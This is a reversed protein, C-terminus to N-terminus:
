NGCVTRYLEVMGRTSVDTTFSRRFERQAVEGLVRARDPDDLLTEIADRLKDVDEAPVLLASVNDQVAERVAALDSAVIPLGFSMAELVAGPLGEWLSPAVFIDSESLLHPVDDRFGLLRVREDLGHSSILRRMEETSEGSRGVILLVIEPRTMALSAFAEILYGHGKQYEHRGVALIVREDGILGLEERTTGGSTPHSARLRVPDRGRLVVTIKDAPVGLDACVTRKVTESVAHFRNVFLRATVMDVVRVLALRWRRLNPDTLRLGSYPVNTYSNVLPIKLGATALRATINADFIASHVLDPRESKVLARLRLVRSWRGEGLIVVRFGETRVSEEVGQPRAVLCAVVAEIGASRLGPLLEALSRETGGTGLGNIVFLVKV